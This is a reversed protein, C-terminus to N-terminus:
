HEHQERVNPRADRIGHPQHGHRDAHRHREDSCCPETGPEDGTLQPGDGAPRQNGYAAVVGFGHTYVTHLNNWNKSDDPLGDQDLERVGLVLDREQGEIVYSDVDLVPAVSYYGRVQQLQEYAPSLASEAAQAQPTGTATGSHPDKWM